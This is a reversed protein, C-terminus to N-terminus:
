IAVSSVDEEFSPYSISACEWGKVAVPGEGILGAVAFTLAMRHDGAADVIGGRLSTPGEIVFGDPQEEISAGLTRLGQALVAIRDSEKLRLEAAGEVVTTGEAQTAALAVLPLEDVLRPVMEGTVATGALSSPWAAVSGVPEPLREEVSLEVHAGMATLVDLIGTRTPNVGVREVVISGKNCLCAAVLLFAASSVDGPVELEFGPRSFLDGSGSIAVEKDTVEVPAGLWRLLRETHDRSPHSELVTTRGEAQLGALLVASKVQASPVPLAYTIGKLTGGSVVIPAHSGDALEVQAGMQRLPEAVRRMPRASLSGDGSLVFRGRRGAVGGALLRMTTGSNGAHLEAYRPVRWGRGSVRVEGRSRDIASGLAALCSATSGVDEGTVGGSITSWGSTMAALILARHAISKDAPVRVSGSFGTVPAFVREM